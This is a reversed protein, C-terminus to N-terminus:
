TKSVVLDVTQGVILETGEPESQELVTEPLYDENLRYSVRGVKLGRDEILRRADDLPLGIVKPVYTYESARGRNVMLNVPTGVQVETGTGPFSFVVVREPITDSYTWSVDGLTLQAAELDLTAQRVSKGALSPITVIKEGMSIVFKVIRGPKVRTGAIPFQSIVVGKEKGPAFEEGAIEYSLDLDELQMEAEIVRRDIFSPLPFDSGQRTIIPMVIQDTIGALVLLILLPIGIWFFLRRALSGPPLFRGLFPKRKRESVTSNDMQTDRNVEM